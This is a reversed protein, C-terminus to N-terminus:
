LKENEIRVEPVTTLAILHKNQSSLLPTYQATYIITTQLSAVTGVPFNISATSRQLNQEQSKGFM